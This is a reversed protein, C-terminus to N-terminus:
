CRGMYLFASFKKFQSILKEKILLLGKINQSSPRKNCFSTYIKAEERAEESCGRLILQSATKWTQLGLFTWQIFCLEWTKSQANKEAFVM